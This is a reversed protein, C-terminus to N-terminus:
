GCFELALRALIEAAAAVQSVSSYETAAHAGAGGPGFVVTPIGAASTLAADMWPTDGYIEPPMGLISAAAHQLLRVIDADRDVEFPQRWFFLDASASFAPDAAARTRLLSDIEARISDPTDGPLTRREVQLRCREPYSSLEQGGEILSAHLSGTGLLPHPSRSRLEAALSELDILIRGMHAIADVGLDPKSGHAARGRTEVALWAFGQHATCIGLDTPETVVAADATFSSLVAQTGLSAYEEDAVATIILDGGLRELRALARAALMIAALSGKMDYAGRGHLRDGDVRPEFPRDMGTVGVTDMHANLMLSRGNARGPLRAIVNPRGPAAEQLQVLLGEDALWATVFEAIRQEGASGPVLSPNISDIAVLDSLLAIVGDQPPRLGINTPSM